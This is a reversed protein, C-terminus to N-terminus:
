RKKEYVVYGGVITMVVEYNQDLVVIDARYGPKVLGIKEMSHANISRVPNTSAMKFVDGTSYGLSLTNKFAENMTLTSGALTGTEVLHSIGGKVEIKVGGLEYIGDPLGTASIADTVLVVRDVGAYDITFKIVQPAVHVFDVIVELYVCPSQLLAIIVGPDRHHIERMGNYLHTAKSAGMLVANLAEEYTANTHGVQVTINRSVAYEVLEAANELEPAVTIERIFGRSVEYLEDFEKVSPKRIFKKNHAGARVPNIYPGELHVGLIRGGHRPNWELSAERAAKVVEVLKERPASVTTPVFATVGYHALTRSM